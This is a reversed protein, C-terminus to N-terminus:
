AAAWADQKDTSAWAHGRAQWAWHTGHCGRFLLPIASGPRAAFCEDVWAPRATIDSLQRVYWHRTAWDGTTSALFEHFEQWRGHALERQFWHADPDGLLADIGSSTAPRAVASPKAGKGFALQHGMLDSDPKAPGALPM